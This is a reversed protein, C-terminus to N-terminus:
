LILAFDTGVVRCFLGGFRIPGILSGTFVFQSNIAHPRRLASAARFQWLLKDYIINDCMQKMIKM